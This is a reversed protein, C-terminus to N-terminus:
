RVLLLLRGDDTPRVELWESRQELRELSNQPWPGSSVRMLGENSSGVCGKLDEGQRM